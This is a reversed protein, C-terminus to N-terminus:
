AADLFNFDSSTVAEYFPIMAKWHSKQAGKRTSETSEESDNANPEQDSYEQEPSDFVTHGLNSKLESIADDRRETIEQWAGRSVEDQLSLSWMGVHFEILKEIESGTLYGLKDSNSEFVVHAYEYEGITALEIDEISELETVLGRRQRNAKRRDRIRLLAYGGIVTAIFTALATEVVM